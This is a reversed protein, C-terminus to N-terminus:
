NVFRYKILYLLAKVGDKWNIKKGESFDRPNYHIPVEIIKYGKKIIKATIEPEFDFRKSKLTISNYVKRTFMKYCTEMDTIRRFYLFSTALSLLINGIYHTPIDWRQKSFLKQKKFRSGYVVSTKDELIPKILIKYDSPEYELDADQIVILDGTCHKLGTRLARGKGGNKNRLIIKYKKSISLDKLIRRTGDTSYDDVLVLEKEINPLEVSEVKSLIKKLTSVENFIPIIISLKM